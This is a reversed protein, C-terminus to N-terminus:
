SKELVYQRPRRLPSQDSHRGLGKLRVQLAVANAARQAQVADFLDRSLIPEHEGRHMEGRYTIEGIYFRNKLM